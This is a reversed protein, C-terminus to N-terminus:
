KQHYNLLKKLKSKINGLYGRTKLYISAFSELVKYTFPYYIYIHYINSKLFNIQTEGIIKTNKNFANHPNKIHQVINDPIFGLDKIQMYTSTEGLIYFASMKNSALYHIIHAQPLHNFGKRLIQCNWIGSIEKIPFGLEENAKVLALQDINIGKLSCSVWLDYWKHYLQHTIPTDRVLMIGSNFHPKGIIDTWGMKKANNVIWEDTESIELQANSDAVAGIEYNYENIDNIPCCIVTDTDIFLYDGDIFQRLHTKLYRSRQINNYANPVEIVKIESFYSKIIARKGIITKNTDHDIVLIATANPHYLRFSYISILLQELYYDNQNSILAYVVKLKM